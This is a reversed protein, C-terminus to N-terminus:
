PASAPAPAQAPEEADGSDVREVAFGQAALLAPIGKEGIMHGAGLVVFRTRGDGALEVLRAAMAANRQWFFGDYFGQLQPLAELPQFIEHELAREDGRAWAEVLTRTHDELDDVRLLVDKLMLEQMELPEGDLLAFQSAVTELGVIPKEGNAQDIFLRDIGLSVDYGEAQLETMLVLQSVFWPKFTQIRANPLHRSEVYDALLKRTEPTLLADLTLHSPLSAYRGTQLEVDAQTLRSVDVEVVLEQSQAFALDIAAGLTPAGAAGIHVSGLLYYAGGGPARAYWFLPTAAHGAPAPKAVDRLPSACAAAGLLALCAIWAASRGARV